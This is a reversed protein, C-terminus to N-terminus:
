GAAGRKPGTPHAAPHLVDYRAEIIGQFTESIAEWDQVDVIIPLDSHALDERLASLRNPDVPGNGVIALDLDSFRRARGTVRSGYARVECDPVHRALIRRVTDLHEPALDIM